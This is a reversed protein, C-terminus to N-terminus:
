LEVAKSILVYLVNMLMFAEWEWFYNNIKIKKSDNDEITITASSPNLAVAEDSTTLEVLLDEDNELISDNVIAISTCQGNTGPQFTLVVTLPSFDSIDEYFFFTWILVVM